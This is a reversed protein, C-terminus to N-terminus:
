VDWTHCFWFKLGPLKVTFRLVWSDACGGTMPLGQDYCWHQWCPFSYEVTTRSPLLCDRIVPTVPFLLSHIFRMEKLLPDKHWKTEQLSVLYRHTPFAHLFRRPKRSLLLPEQQFGHYKTPVMSDCGKSEDGTEADWKQLPLWSNVESWVM